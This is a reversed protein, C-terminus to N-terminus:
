KQAAVFPLLDEKKLLRSETCNAVMKQTKETGDTRVAGIYYVCRVIRKKSSLLKAFGSFNFALLHHLGLDKLKFYFNSGDVLVICRQKKM